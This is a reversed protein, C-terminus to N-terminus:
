IVDVDVHFIVLMTSMFKEIIFIQRLKFFNNVVLFDMFYSM